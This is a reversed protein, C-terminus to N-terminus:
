GGLGEVLPAESAAQVAQDAVRPKPDDVGPGLRVTHLRLVLLDQEPTARPFNEPLLGTVPGQQLSDSVFAGPLLDFGEGGSWQIVPLPPAHHEGKQRGILM